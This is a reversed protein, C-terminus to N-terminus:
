HAAPRAHPVEEQAIDSPSQYIAARVVADVSPFLGRTDVRALSLGRVEVLVDHHPVDAVAALVDRYRGRLGVALEEERDTARPATQAASAPAISTVTVHNRRAEDELIKLVAVAARGSGGAGALRALDKRVRERTRELPGIRAVLAENRDALEALEAAHSALAAIRREAPAVVAAFGAIAAFAVAFWAIRVQASPPLTM